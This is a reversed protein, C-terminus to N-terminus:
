LRHESCACQFKPNDKNEPFLLHKATASTASCTGGAGLHQELQPARSYGQSCPWPSPAPLQFGLLSPFNKPAKGLLSTYSVPFTCFLNSPLHSYFFTMLRLHCLLLSSQPAAQTFMRFPSSKDPQKFLPCTKELFHM